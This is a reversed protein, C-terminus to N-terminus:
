KKYCVYIDAEIMNMEEDFFHHVFYLNGQADLTPEGAFNSVIEEPENWTGNPLKVSRFVAPGTYGLTSPRTFWLETEEENVFPRSDDKETSVPYGINQPETWTNNEITTTFLDYEGSGNASERHFYLTNKDSSLHMEGINYDGNLLAGANKIDVWEDNEYTAIWIDGDERYNNPRFSAFWLRNDQYFPAGDLGINTGLELRTPETWTNDQKQCWWIGTVGDLLQENHPITVDPTFFFLFTKGDPTIFCADEGGATNVPGPMPEPDNWTANHVVPTFRDMESTYKIADDPISEERSKQEVCGPITMILIILCVFSILVVKKM